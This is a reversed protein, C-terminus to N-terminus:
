TLPSTEFQELSPRRSLAPADRVDVTPLMTRRDYCAAPMSVAHAVSTKPIGVQKRLEGVGHPPCVYKIPM